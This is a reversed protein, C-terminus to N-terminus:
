KLDVPRLRQLTKWRGSRSEGPLKTSFSNILSHINPLHDAAKGQDWSKQLRTLEEFLFLFSGQDMIYIGPEM